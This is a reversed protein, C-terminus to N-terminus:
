RWRKAPSERRRSTKRRAAASKRGFAHEFTETTRAPLKHVLDPMDHEVIQRARDDIWQVDDSAALQDHLTRFDDDSM